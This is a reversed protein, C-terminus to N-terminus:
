RQTFREAIARFFAGRTLVGTLRGDDIVPVLLVRHHLFIEAVQTDAFDPAVDVHETNMHREVAESRCVDRKELADDLSRALFGSHRLDRLYGPFLAAMFEREGFIGVYRENGDVVPLAPLGSDLVKRVADEVSDDAHLPEPTELAHLGYSQPSM